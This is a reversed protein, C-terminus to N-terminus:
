FNLRMLALANLTHITSFPNTKGYVEPLPFDPLVERDFSFFGIKLLGHDLYEAPDGVAVATFTSSQVTSVYGHNFSLGSTASLSSLMDGIPIFWDIFFSFPVVEWAVSFPNVLGLTNGSRLFPNDIHASIAGFCRGECEWTTECGHEEGTTSYKVTPVGKHVELDMSSQKQAQFLAYNDHISGLLPKWGYQYALWKESFFRMNRLDAKTCGLIEPVSGWNGSRAAKYARLVQVTTKALMGVTERGEALDAGNSVSADDALAGRLRTKAFSKANALDELFSQPPTMYMTPFRISLPVTHYLETYIKGNSYTLTKSRLPRDALIKGVSRKYRTPSKGDSHVMPSKSSFETLVTHYITDDFVTSGVHGQALQKVIDSKEYYGVLNTFADIAM